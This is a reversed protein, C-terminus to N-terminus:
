AALFVQAVPRAQLAKWGPGGEGSGAQPHM